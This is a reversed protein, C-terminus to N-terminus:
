GYGPQRDGSGDKITSTSFDITINQFLIQHDLRNGVRDPFEGLDLVGVFFTIETLIKNLAKLIIKLLRLELAFTLANSM